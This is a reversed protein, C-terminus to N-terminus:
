PSPLHNKAPVDASTRACALAWRTSTLLRDRAPVDPWERDSVQNEFRTPGLPKAGLPQALDKLLRDVSALVEKALCEGAVSRGHSRARYDDRRGGTAAVCSASKESSRTTPRLRPRARNQVLRLTPAFREPRTTPGFVPSGHCRGCRLRAFALKVSRWNNADVQSFEIRQPVVLFHCTKAEVDDQWARVARWLAPPDKAACAARMRDSYEKRRGSAPSQDKRVDACVKAFEAEGKKGTTLADFDAIAKERERPDTRPQIVTVEVISCEAKGRSTPDCEVTLM